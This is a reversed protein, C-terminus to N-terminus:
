ARKESASVGDARWHSSFM